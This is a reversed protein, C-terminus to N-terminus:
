LGKAKGRQTQQNKKFEQEKAEYITDVNDRSDSLWNDAGRYPM